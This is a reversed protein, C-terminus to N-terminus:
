KEGKKMFERIERDSYSPNKDGVLMTKVFAVDDNSDTIKVVKLYNQDAHLSMVFPDLLGIVLNIGGADIVM